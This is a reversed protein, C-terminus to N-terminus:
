IYVTCHELAPKAKLPQRVGVAWIWAACVPGRRATYVAEVPYNYNPM